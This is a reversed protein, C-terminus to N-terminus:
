WGVQLTISHWYTWQKVIAWKTLLFRRVYAGIDQRRGSCCTCHFISKFWQVSCCPNMMKWWNKLTLCTLLSSESYVANKGFGSSVGSSEDADGADLSYFCIYIYTFFGGSEWLEWLVWISTSSHITEVKFVSWSTEGFEWSVRSRCKKRKRFGHCVHLVPLTVEFCIIIQTTTQYLNRLSDINSKRM